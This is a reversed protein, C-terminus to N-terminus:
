QSQLNRHNFLQSLDLVFYIWEMAEGVVQKWGSWRFPFGMRLTASLCNVQTSPWHVSHLGHFAQLLVQPRPVCTEVLLQVFGGGPLPPSFHLPSWMFVFLQLPGSQPALQVAQDSHLSHLLVQEEPISTLVRDHWCERVPNLLSLQIPDGRPLRIQVLSGHLISPAHLEHDLHDDQLAVHEQPVLNLVLIQSLGRGLYPPFGQKPLPM